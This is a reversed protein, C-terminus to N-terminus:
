GHFVDDQMMRHPAVLPVVNQWRLAEKILANVYVLSATDDFDPLRHPGVVSDLEAHAKKVVEPHLSAALLVTQLTSFTTDSGGEFAVAGVNKITDERQEASTAVLKRAPTRGGFSRFAQSIYPDNEIVADIDYLINLLASSFTYRLHEKFRAPDQLLLALFDRATDLQVARYQVIARATFYQWFMRRHQRWRQGYSYFTMNLDSGTLEVIPTVKRDSTIASRKELLEDIVDADDLAVVSQGFVRVHVINGYTMSLNHYGIWPKFKPAELINGVLPLGKPGPPLPRGRTRLRWEVASRM